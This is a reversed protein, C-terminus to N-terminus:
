ARKDWDAHQIGLRVGAAIAGVLLTLGAVVLLAFGILEFAEGIGGVDATGMSTIIGGFMVGVAGMVM